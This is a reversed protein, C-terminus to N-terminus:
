PRFKAQVVRGILLAGCRDGAPGQTASRKKAHSIPPSPVTGMPSVEVTHPKLTDPYVRLLFIVQWISRERHTCRLFTGPRGVLREPRRSRTGTSKQRGTGKQIGPTRRVTLLDRIEILQQQQAHERLQYNGTVPLDCIM